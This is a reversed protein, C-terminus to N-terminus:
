QFQLVVSLGSQFWGFQEDDETDFGVGGGVEGLIQLAMQRGIRLNIGASIGAAGYPHTQDGTTGEPVNVGGGELYAGVQAGFRWPRYRRALGIRVGFLYADRNSSDTPAFHLYRGGVALEWDHMRTLPFLLDLGFGATLSHSTEPIGYAYGGLASLNLFVNGPCSQRSRARDLAPLPRTNPVCNVDEPGTVPQGAFESAFANYCEATDFGGPLEDNLGRTSFVYHAWEHLLTLAQQDPTATWFQSCLDIRQGGFLGVHTVGLATSCESSPEGTATCPYTCDTTRIARAIRSFRDGIEPLFRCRVLVDNYDLRFRKWILARTTAALPTARIAAAANEALTAAENERASVYAASRGAVARCPLHADDDVVKRQAQSTDARQQVVHTLEHAILRRGERTKPTFQGAGFVVNHGVTYAHANVDKASQEAATGSHVRVGSFDHGFRQEMDAKLLPELPSGSNALVRDVSAPSTDTQGVPQETFRQVRPPASGIASNAPMSLVQDAIRDAEQELPDDSAGITLKRQIAPPVSLSTDGNPKAHNSTKRQLSHEKKACESCEGPVVTHNGCACKRQLIGSAQLPDPKTQSQTQGSAKNMKMNRMSVHQAICSEARTATSRNGRASSRWSYFYNTGAYQPPVPVHGYWASEESQM